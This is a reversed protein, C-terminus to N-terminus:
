HEFLQAGALMIRPSLEQTWRTEYKKNNIEIVDGKSVTINGPFYICMGDDSFDHVIAIAAQKRNNLNVIEVNDTLHRKGQRMDAVPNAAPKLIGLDRLIKVNSKM